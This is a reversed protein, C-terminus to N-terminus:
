IQGVYFEQCTGVGEKGGRLMEAALAIDSTCCSEGKLGDVKGRLCERQRNIARVGTRM